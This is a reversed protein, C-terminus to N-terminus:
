GGPAALWARVAAVVAEDDAPRTDHGRGPLWVHSVDGAIAATHTAFEEPTGFPDRDGGVFLCPVALGGFHAVRLNDPRRPPHLPYSLLVLGAAPLGDAVALSCVRGGMSRGGLALGAPDISEEACMAAAQEAIHPVLREARPPPGRRGGSRHPFGVRRVPLPALARELAVLTHHDPDGGAGPALLLGGAARVATSM